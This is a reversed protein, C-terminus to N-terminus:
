WWPGWASQASEGIQKRIEPPMRSLIMIKAEEIGAKYGDRFGSKYGESFMDLCEKQQTKKECDTKGDKVGDDYTKIKSEEEM